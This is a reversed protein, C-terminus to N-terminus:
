LMCYSNSVKNSALNLVRLDPFPPLSAVKMTEDEASETVDNDLVIETIEHSLATFDDTETFIIM